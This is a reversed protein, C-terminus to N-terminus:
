EQAVILLKKSIWLEEKGQLSVWYIGVPIEGLPLSTSLEGKDIQFHKLVQGYQNLITGKLNKTAQQKLLITAQQTAPNPFVNVSNNLDTEIISTSLKSEGNFVEYAGIDIISSDIRPNGALDLSLAPYLYSNKGANVLLGSELPRFDYSEADRFPSARDYLMGEGCIVSASCDNDDIFSHAINAHVKVGSFDFLQNNGALNEYFVSNAIFTFTSDWSFNSITAGRREAINFAFTCNTILLSDEKSHNIAGGTNKTSNETFLCGVIRSFGSGSVAGGSYGSNNEKFICNLIHFQTIDTPTHGGFFDIAGGEDLLVLLVGKM